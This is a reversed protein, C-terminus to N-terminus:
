ESLGALRLGSLFRELPEPDRCPIKTADALTHEPELNLYETLAVRAEGIRGLLALSAARQRRYTPNDPVMRIAQEATNLSDEYRKLTHEAWYQGTLWFSMISDRPSLRRALEVQAMAEEAQGLLALIAGRFGIAPAFNPSLTVARESAIAADDWRHAFAYAWALIILAWPDSDDMSVAQEATELMRGHSEEPSSGWRYFGELFYVLALDSLGLESNPDLEVAREFLKLAEAADDRSNKWLHARGRIVCEWADLQSVDKRRATKAEASLFQPAVAGVIALTVEDQVEFIDDVRRDYREAWVHFGTTADILQATIRLRDGGKRVSGELVYKVGLDSAVKKVDVAHGKYTFSSNRAIVFFWPMRSLATIIDEAMGDAFFEQDPDGSMNDFPLVAISPKDPLSLSPAGAVRGEPMREPADSWRWVRVPASVHKVTQDGMDEFVSDIRNRIQNHVDGSICIGGPEALGELRAAINIGEGHVDGGDDTIDGVNVGIRFDLPCSILREQLTIACNVADQVSPFEVLFGDGTFKVIHGSKSEVIPKIVNDRAEKWAAVTGDTDTEVLRTYGAVDAALIAALRRQNITDSM